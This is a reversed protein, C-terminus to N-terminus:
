DEVQKGVIDRVVDLPVAKISSESVNGSRMSIATRHRGTGFSVTRGATTKHCIGQLLCKGRDLGREFFFCVVEHDQLDTMQTRNRIKENDRGTSRVNLNLRNRTADLLSHLAFLFTWGRDLAYLTAMPDHEVVVVHNNVDKELRGTFEIAELAIPGVSLLHRQGFRVARLNSIQSKTRYTLRVEFM